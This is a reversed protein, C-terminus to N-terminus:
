HGAQCTRAERRSRTQAEVEVAAFRTGIEQELKARAIFGPVYGKFSLSAHYNLQTGERVPTLRWEGGYAALDGDTQRFTILQNPTEEMEVTSYMRIRFFLVRVIAVQKVRVEHESIREVGIEQMGPIFEPLRTYDTLVAYVVCPPEALLLSASVNFEDHDRQVSVQLNQGPAPQADDARVPLCALAAFFMLCLR